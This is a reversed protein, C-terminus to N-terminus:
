LLWHLDPTVSVRLKIESTWPPDLIKKGTLLRIEHELILIYKFPIYM